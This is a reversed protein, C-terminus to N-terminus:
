SGQDQQSPMQESLLIAQGTVMCVIGDRIPYLRQGSESLLGGDVKEAVMQDEIDRVKNQEISENLRAILSQDAVRLPQLDVPCRLKSLLKEDIM